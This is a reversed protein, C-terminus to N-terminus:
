NKLVEVIEELSLSTGRAAPDSSILLLKKSAHLFWDAKSDIKKFEQYTKTLDVKSDYRSYIKVRQLQKPDYKVVLVFGKVEAEWLVKENGTELAIARGWKTTFKIGEEEIKEEAKVKDKLARLLGDLLIVGLEILKDDEVINRKIGYILSQLYFEFRDSGAEKWSLDRANDIETIVAVMREVAEKELPSVVEGKRKELIFDWTLEAASVIKKFQHHDLRGLGTDVHLIEPESDAAQDEWTKGAPVFCVEAGGWGPLFRRVLWVSGIADLDPNIHTVIRKM